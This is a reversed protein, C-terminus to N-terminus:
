EGMSPGPPLENSFNIDITKNLSFFFYFYSYNERDMSQVIVNVQNTFM